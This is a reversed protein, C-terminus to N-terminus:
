GLTLPQFAPNDGSLGLQQQQRPNKVPMRVLQGNPESCAGDAQVVVLEQGDSRWAAKCARVGQPKADTLLFDKPKALYLQFIDGDFNAVVAMQKGDPSLALDIAGKGSTSIDTVFKGKGWDKADPSFAKRSQYRVIGFTGLQKVGLAFISKGDPAWRVTKILNVKPDAICQPEMGDKTIQGLCLDQDEGKKRLMALLNLDVTPAWALDSFQESETTLAVPTEDPKERNSLFVRKGGRFAIKTGDFSFTPDTEIQSGKAVAGLRKGNAGNVLLV